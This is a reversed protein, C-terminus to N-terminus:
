RAPRDAASQEGLRAGRRPKLVVTVIGLSVDDDSAGPEAAAIEAALELDAARLVTSAGPVAPMVDLDGIRARLVSDGRAADTLLTVSATDEDTGLDDRRFFWLELVGVRGISQSRLGIGGVLSGRGDSVLWTQYFPEDSPEYTVTAADGLSIRLPRWPVGGSEQQRSVGAPLSSRAAGAPAPGRSVGGSAGAGPRADNPLAAGGLRLAATEADHVTRGAPPAMGASDPDRRAIQVRRDRRWALWAVGLVALASAAVLLVAAAIMRVTDLRAHGPAESPAAPLGSAAAAGLGEALLAATHQQLPSRDEAALAALAADLDAASIGDLLGLARDVDRARAYDDAVLQVWEVRWEAPLDGPGDVVAAPSREGSSFLIWGLLLGVVLALALSAARTVAGQRRDRPDARSSDRSAGEGHPESPKGTADPQGEPQQEPMRERMREPLGDPEAGPVM